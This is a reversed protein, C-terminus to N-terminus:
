IRAFDNKDRRTNAVDCYNFMVFFAKGGELTVCMHHSSRQRAFLEEGIYGKLCDTNKERIIAM